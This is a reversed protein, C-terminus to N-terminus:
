RKLPLYWKTPQHNLLSNMEPSFLFSFFSLKCTFSIFWFSYTLPSVSSFHDSLLRRFRKWTAYHLWNKISWVHINTYASVDTLICIWLTHRRMQMKLQLVRDALDNCTMKIGYKGYTKPCVPRLLCHLGLHSAASRPTEDPGVSNVVWGAINICLMPSYITSTWMKSCTHYPPSARISLTFAYIESRRIEPM